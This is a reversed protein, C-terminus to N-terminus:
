KVLRLLPTAKRKPKPPEPATVLGIERLIAWVEGRLFARGLTTQIGQAVLEMPGQFKRKLYARQKCKPSCYSPIRGRAKLKITRKCHQCRVSRPRRKPRM